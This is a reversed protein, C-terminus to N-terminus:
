QSAIQTIKKLSINLSFNLHRIQISDPSNGQLDGIEYAEM